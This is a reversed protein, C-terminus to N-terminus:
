NTSQKKTKQKEKNKNEEEKSKKFIEFMNLIQINKLDSCKRCKFM